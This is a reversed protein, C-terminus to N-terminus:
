RGSIQSTDRLELSKVSLVGSLPLGSSSRGLLTSSQITLNAGNKLRLVNLYTVNGALLISCQSINLTKTPSDLTSGYAFTITSASSDCSFLSTANLTISAPITISANNTVLLSTLYSSTLISSSHSLTTTYSSTTSTYSSGTISLIGNLLITGAHTLLSPFSCNAM